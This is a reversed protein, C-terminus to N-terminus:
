FMLALCYGLSNVKGDQSKYYSQLEKEVEESKLFEEVEKEDFGKLQERAEDLSIKKFEEYEMKAMTKRWRSDEKVSAKAEKIKNHFRKPSVNKEYGEAIEIKEAPKQEKDSGGGAGGKSTFKGEKDRPHENEKFDANRIKSVELCLYKNGKKIVAIDQNKTKIRLIKSIM